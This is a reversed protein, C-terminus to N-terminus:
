IEKIKSVLSKALHVGGRHIGVLCLLETGKNKEVIEHAMRTIARNIDDKNLLEKHM